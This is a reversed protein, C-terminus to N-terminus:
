DAGGPISNVAREPGHNGTLRCGDCPLADVHKSTLGCRLVNDSNAMIEVGLGTLYAHPM